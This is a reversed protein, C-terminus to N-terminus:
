EAAAGSTINCDFRLILVRCARVVASSYPQLGEAASIAETARMRRLPRTM